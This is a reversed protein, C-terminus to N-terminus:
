SRIIRVGVAVVAYRSTIESLDLQEVLEVVFRALHQEPLWEQISPPLLNLLRRWLELEIGGIGFGLCTLRLAYVLTPLTGFRYELLREDVTMPLGTAASILGATERARPAPSAYLANPRREACARAVAAAQARGLASLSADEYSTGPANRAQAHRVLFLRLSPFDTM